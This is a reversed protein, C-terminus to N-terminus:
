LELAFEIDRNSIAGEFSTVAPSALKGTGTCYLKEGRTVPRKAGDLVANKLTNQSGCLDNIAAQTQALTADHTRTAWWLLSDRKSATLGDLQTIGLDIADAILDPTYNSRWVYFVPTAQVNYFSAMAGTAGQTRYEVFAPDTEAAIADALTQLQEPTM